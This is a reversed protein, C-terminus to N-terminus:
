RKSRTFIRCEFLTSTPNPYVKVDQLYVENVHTLNACVLHQYDRELYYHMRAAQEESFFTKCKVRSYSMINHPDSDYLDNNLDRATGTYECNTNVNRTGLEPDAPTDCIEDGTFSCNSGNVLENGRNTEHTHLLGLFHGVEHALTSGNLACANKVVLYQHEDWPFRAYGCLSTADNVVRNIFYMNLVDPINSEALTDGYIFRDFNYFNDEFIDVAAQCQYFEIGVSAFRINLSDMIEPIYARDLGGGGLTFNVIQIVVPIRVMERENKAELYNQLFYNYETQNFYTDPTTVTACDEHSHAQAFFFTPFFLCAFLLSLPIM